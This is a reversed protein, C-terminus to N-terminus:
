DASEEGFGLAIWTEHDPIVVSDDLVGDSDKDRLVLVAATTPADSEGQSFIYVNGHTAHRLGQISNYFGRLAPEVPVGSRPTASFALQQAGTACDIRYVDRSDWFHAFVHRPNDTGAEVFLAKIGDRGVAASRYIQAVPIRREPVIQFIPAGSDSDAFRNIQPLSLAWEEITTEGKTSRGAVYLKNGFLALETPYYALPEAFTLSEAVTDWGDTSYEWAFSLAKVSTRFSIKAAVDPGAKFHKSGQQTKASAWPPFGKEVQMPSETQLLLAMLGCAFLKM